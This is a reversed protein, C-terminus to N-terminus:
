ELVRSVSAPTDWFKLAIKDVSQNGPYSPSVTFGYKLVVAVAVVIDNISFSFLLSHRNTISESLYKSQTFSM